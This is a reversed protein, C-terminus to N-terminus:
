KLLLARRNSIKYIYNCFELKSKDHSIFIITKNSALKILTKIIIEANRSDLANTSEDLVLIERDFYLARAIEIRQKQGGSINSIKESLITDYKKPLKSIFEHIGAKKSVRIVKKININKSTEGFAINSKISGYILNTSQSIIAFKSNLSNINENNIFINDFSLRINKDYIM